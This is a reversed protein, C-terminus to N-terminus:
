SNPPAADPRAGSPAGAVERLAAAVTPYRLRLRLERRLRSNVLRRSERMFSFLAEPIRSQAEERTVRPPRPLGFADAVADFYDGMMMESGDAANYVRGPRGRVLAARVIRALDDAHIHNTFVDQERALAPTGSRLRELPLRDAAYIGPVRLIAVTVGHTRGWARLQREADVRRQGRQSAPRVSRTEAVREGACDGYVASTSLYVFHQPLSRARALARLLHRTRTDKGDSDPPPAMHVVDHALGAIRALSDPRDLDGRIPLIGRSRLLSERAPSHTLGYLRYRCALLRALRLGVDGCGVILLRRM